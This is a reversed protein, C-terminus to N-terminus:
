LVKRAYDALEMSVLDASARTEKLTAIETRADDLQSRDHCENHSAATDWEGYNMARLERLKSITAHESHSPRRTQRLLQAYQRWSQKVSQWVRQHKLRLSIPPNSYEPVAPNSHDCRDYRRKRHAPQRSKRLVYHM